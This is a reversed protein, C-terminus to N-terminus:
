LTFHNFLSGEQDVVKKNNLIRIPIRCPSDKQASLYVVDLFSDQQDMRQFPNSGINPRYIKGALCIVQLICNM